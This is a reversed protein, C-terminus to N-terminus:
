QKPGDSGYFRHSGNEQRVALFQKDPLKIPTSDQEDSIWIIREMKQRTVLELMSRDRPLKAITFIRAHTEGVLFRLIFYSDTKLVIETPPAPALELMIDIAEYHLPNDGDAFRVVDNEIRIQNSITRLQRLMQELQREASEPRIEPFKALLFQLLQVKKLYRLKRTIELIYKQQISMLM